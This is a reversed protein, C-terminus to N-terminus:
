REVANRSYLGNNKVVPTRFHTSLLGSQNTQIIAPTKVTAHSANKSPANVCIAPM